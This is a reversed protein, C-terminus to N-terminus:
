ARALERMLRLDGQGMLHFRLMALASMAALERVFAREGAFQFRRAERTGDASARAIWVTGVPKEDTGGGPGAIGTISLAHHAGAREIAGACMAEACSRSVAGDANFISAPVGVMSQKMENSYTVWGGVYAESSGPEATLMAGVLGGTCSEVTTVTEERSVLRGLLSAALTREGEGFLYPGARDAAIRATEDLIAAADAGAGEYRIRISVVGASATTGVLPNRTRNMLDGLGAALDSEGIGFCRLVRSRIVRGTAPRLMASVFSEFMPRMERPPGPLCFVDAHDTALMLGPATGHDNRICSGSEPRLAQVRNAEPMPRGARQFYAEIRARAAGDEVLKQGFASALSERTLDDETPGLGGTAVVVDCAAALRRFADSLTRGDDAVTVHERVTVGAETLRDALWQTNTDLAAGTALEDGIALIAGTQHTRDM